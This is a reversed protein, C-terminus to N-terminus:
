AVKWWWREYPKPDPLPPAKEYERHCSIVSPQYPKILDMQGRSLLQEFEEDTIPVFQRM